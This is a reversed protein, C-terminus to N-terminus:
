ATNMQADHTCDASALIRSRPLATHPSRFMDNKTPLTAARDPSLPLKNGYNESKTDIQGGDCRTQASREDLFPQLLMFLNHHAVLVSVTLIGYASFNEIRQHRRPKQTKESASTVQGHRFSHTKRRKSQLHSPSASAKGQGKGKRLKELCLRGLVPSPKTLQLQGLPAVDGEDRFVSFRFFFFFSFTLHM